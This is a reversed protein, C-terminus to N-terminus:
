DNRRLSFILEAVAQACGGILFLVWTIYWAMTEFSVIFYLIFVLTWIIVRISNRVAKDKNSIYKSEKYNEALNEERKQYGPYMNAAYVLMCTPAICIAAAMILGLLYMDMGSGYGNEEMFACLFFAIGAFIYMGVSVSTLMARKKRDTESLTM